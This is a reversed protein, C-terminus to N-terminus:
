FPVDDEEETAEMIKSARTKTHKTDHGSEWRLKANGVITGQEGAEREEKSVNESIFGNNGYQDEEDDFRLTLDAYTGKKGKFFRSKDLKTVDISLSIYKVGM